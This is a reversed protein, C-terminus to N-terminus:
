GPQCHFDAGEVGGAVDAGIGRLNAVPGLCGFIEPKRMYFYGIVDEPRGPAIAPCGSIVLLVRKVLSKHGRTKESCHGCSDM